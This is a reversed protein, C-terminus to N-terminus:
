TKSDIQMRLNGVSVECASRKERVLEMQVGTGTQKIEASEDSM